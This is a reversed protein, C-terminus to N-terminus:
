RKCMVRVRQSGDERQRWSKLWLADDRTLCFLRLVPHAYMDSHHWHYAQRLKQFISRPSLYKALQAKTTM